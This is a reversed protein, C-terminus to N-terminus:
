RSIKTDPHLKWKGGLSHGLLFVRQPDVQPLQGAYRVAATADDLVEQAVDFTAPDFQSRFAFTRKDYRLSAVGREALGWAIDRFPKNPGITEDRDNPGSGHVLVVIPVKSKLQLPLCLTAPLEFKGSSFKLEQETFHQVESKLKEAPALAFGERVLDVHQSPVFVRMLTNSKADAWFQEFLGATELEYRRTAIPKGDLTAIEEGASVIKIRIEALTQPVVIWWESSDPPKVGLLNLLIQYHSAILNDLILLNPHVDVTQDKSVSGAQAHLQIGAGDNSAEISQDGGQATVNLQYRIFKWDTSLTQKQAFSVASGSIILSSQSTLSYGDKTRQISYDETGTIRGQGVRITFRNSTQAASPM